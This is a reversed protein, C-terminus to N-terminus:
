ITVFESWVDKAGTRKREEYLENSRKILADLDEGSLSRDEVTPRCSSKKKVKAIVHRAVRSEVRRNVALTTTEVSSNEGDTKRKATKM